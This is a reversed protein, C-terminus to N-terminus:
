WRYASLPIVLHGIVTTLLLEAFMIKGYTQAFVSDHNDKRIQNINIIVVTIIIITYIGWVNIYELLGTELADPVLNAGVMINSVVGFFVPPILGMADVKHYICVYLTLFVWISIGIIAIICKFYLGWSSRNLEICTMLESYVVPAQQDIYSPYREPRPDKYYYNGMDSRMVEFGSVNLEENVGFTSKDMAQMHIHTMDQAPQIYFRLQYSSLPFRKTPFIQGVNATIHFLQYQTGGKQYEDLKEKTTIKGNYVKFNDEMDFEPNKNADWAFLTDFSVTFQSQKIDISDISNVYTSAQVLVAAQSNAEVERPPSKARELHDIWKTEAQARDRALSYSTFGLYLVAIGMILITWFMIKRKQWAELKAKIHLKKM